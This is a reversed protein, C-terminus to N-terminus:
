GEAELVWAKVVDMKLSSIKVLCRNLKTVADQVYPTSDFQCFRDVFLCVIVQWLVWFQKQHYDVSWSSDVPDVGDVSDHGTTIM